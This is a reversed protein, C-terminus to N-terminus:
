RISPQARARPRCVYTNFPDNFFVESFPDFEVAGAPLIPDTV